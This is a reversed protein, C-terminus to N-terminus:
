YGLLDDRVRGTDPPEIYHPRAHHMADVVLEARNSWRRYLSGKSARARGAVREMTLEAYGVDALETLTADFIAATLADGRRRPGRRHDSSVSGDDICADLPEGAEGTDDLLEGPEGAVGAVGPDGDAAERVMPLM